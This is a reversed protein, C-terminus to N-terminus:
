KLTEVHASAMVVRGRGTRKAVYLAEDATEMVQEFEPGDKIWLGIGASCGIVVETDGVQIPRSVAEIIRNCVALAGKEGENILLLVFEDGGTRMLMDEPRLCGLMRQSAELLVADGVAHGYTDNVFKFGDLDMCSVAMCGDGSTIAASARLLMRRNPLGTLQDREAEGQAIQLQNRQKVLSSVMTGLSETLVTIERYSFDAKLEGGPEGRRMRDAAQALRNLPSAIYSAALWAICSMLYAILLTMLLTRSLAEDLFANITERQQRLVVKWGFLSNRASGSLYEKGDPWVEIHTGTEQVSKLMALPKGIINEPGIVVKGDAAIILAETGYDYQGKPVILDRARNWDLHVAVVGIMNGEADHIPSSSDLFLTPRGLPDPPLMSSLLVADHVDGYHLGKTGSIFVPRTAISRGQLIGGSAAIVIGQANVIGVWAVATDSSKLADVMVRAKAPEMIGPTASLLTTMAGRVRVYSELQQGIQESVRYLTEERRQDLSTRTSALLAFGTAMSTCLVLIMSAVAVHARLSWNKRRMVREKIIIDM